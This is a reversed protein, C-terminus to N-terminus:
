SISLAQHELRMIQQNLFYFNYYQQTGAYSSFYVKFNPVIYTHKIFIHGSRQFTWKLSESPNEPPWTKIEGRPAVRSGLPSTPGCPHAKDGLYYLGETQGVTKLVTSLTWGKPHVFPHVNGRPTLILVLSGLAFTVGLLMSMFIFVPWQVLRWDM